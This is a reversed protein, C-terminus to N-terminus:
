AAIRLSNAIAVDSVYVLVGNKTVVRGSSAIRQAEIRDNEEIDERIKRVRAQEADWQSQNMVHNQFYISSIEAIQDGSVNKCFDWAEGLSVGRFLEKRPRSKVSTFELSVIRGSQYAGDMEIIIRINSMELAIGHRRADIGSVKTTYAWDDGLGGKGPVLPSMRKDLKFETM